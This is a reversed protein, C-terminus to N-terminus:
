YQSEIKRAAMQQVLFRGLQRDVGLVHTRLWDNLFTLVEIRSVKKGERLQDCVAIVQHSFERHQTIHDQAEQPYVAAYGYRQMLGEETEFHMIAYGLLDKAIQELLANGQERLLRENAEQLTDVLYHHQKDIAVIGTAMAETWKIPKFQSKKVPM